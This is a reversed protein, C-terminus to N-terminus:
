KLQTAAWNFKTQNLKFKKFELIQFLNNVPVTGTFLINRVPVTGTFLVNSVPVSKIM